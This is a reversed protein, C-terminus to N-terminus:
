SRDILQNGDKDAKHFAELKLEVTFDNSHSNFGIQNASLSAILTAAGIVLNKM